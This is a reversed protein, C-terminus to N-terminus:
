LGIKKSVQLRNDLSDKVYGDKANESRWRGHRKFMRDPVGANAAASAGGARLSHLGYQRKDLGIAELKALVAERVTTYSLGGKERLKSGNKTQTIGRFLFSDSEGPLLAAMAMYRELMAVPCLNTGTRAIVVVAGQRLQDTKSSEIFLEMHEQHLSIDCLRLRSLEDFRLFGAFGLLCFTLARVDALGAEKGGFKEVMSQLHEVTIPEKKVTKHALLRKAGALVQQVLPHATIDEVTAMRHVWSLANVAEELPAPTKAVQALYSLYLAVHIPKAPLVSVEPRGAVWRKWRGFAGGYKKITAPAKGQLVISPLTSALDKLEPDEISQLDLWTGQSFVDSFHCLIVAVILPISPM